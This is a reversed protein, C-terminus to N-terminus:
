ARSNTAKPYVFKEYVKELLRPVTTFMQPHVDQLSAAIVDMSKAYYISVGASIYFYCATREFVHSLPLFSVTRWQGPVLPKVFRCVAEVQSVVNRHSLM